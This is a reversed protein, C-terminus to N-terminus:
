AGQETEFYKSVYNKQWAERTKFKKGEGVLRREFKDCAARAEPPLDSYTKGLTASHTQRGQGGNGSAVRSTGPAATGFHEAVYAETKAKVDDLFASGVRTDGAARMQDSIGRAVLERPTGIRYDPNRDFWGLLDQAVAPPVQGPRAAEAGNGAPKKPPEGLEVLAATAEAVAEHDGDRSAQIIKAKLEEKTAAHTAIADEVNDAEIAAVTASLARNQREIESLRRDREALEEKMRRNTASLIPLMTKGRDLFSKADLWEAGGEGRWQEKPVWGLARAEALEQATPEAAAGEGEVVTGEGEEAM